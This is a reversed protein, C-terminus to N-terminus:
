EEAGDGGNQVLNKGAAEGLEPAPRGYGAHIRDLVSMEEGPAERDQYECGPGCGYMRCSFAPNAHVAYRYDKFTRTAEGRVKAEMPSVCRCRGSPAHCTRWDGTCELVDAPLKLYRRWVVEVEGAGLDGKELRDALDRLVEAPKMSRYAPASRVEGCPFWPKAGCTSCARDRVRFHDVKLGMNVGGFTSYNPAESLALGRLERQMRKPIPRVGAM